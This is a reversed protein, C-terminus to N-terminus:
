TKASKCPTALRQMKDCLDFPIFIIRRDVLQMNDCAFACLAAVFLWWFLWWFAFLILIFIEV